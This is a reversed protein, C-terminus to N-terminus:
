YTYSNALRSLCQSTIPFTRRNSIKRAANYIRAAVAATVITLQAFISRRRPSTGLWRGKSIRMCRRDRQKRFSTKQVIAVHELVVVFLHFLGELVVARSQRLIPADASKRWQLFTISSWRPRRHQSHSVFVRPFIRNGDVSADNYISDTRSRSSLKRTKPLPPPRPFPFPWKLCNLICKLYYGVSNELTCVPESKGYYM